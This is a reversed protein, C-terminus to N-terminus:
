SSEESRRTHQAVHERAAAVLVRQWASELRKLRAGRIDATFHTNVLLYLLAKVMPADDPSLSRHGVIAERYRANLFLRRADVDVRFFEDEPLMSWRIDVPQEDPVLDTADAFAEIVSAPMGGHPEVVSVPRAQRKRAERSEDRAAALLDAFGRGDASRAARIADKLVADLVVGTKEPNITVHRETSPGLDLALRAQGLDPERMTLDCWGGAQLLRDRRYVYLGQTDLPGREDLVFGPASQERAPWVYATATVTGDDLRVPLDMPFGVAGSVRSSFPDLPSVVAPAGPGYEADYEEISVHVAGRALLRHLVLGLHTALRHITSGIWAQQEEVDTTPLFARVDAWEVVTGTELDFDVDVADLRERATDSAYSEVVPGTDITARRIRRGVAPAGFRRSWVILTEAQSLSAAKLGIGFHGLDNEDYDRKRAYTMAADVAATDMGHGDDIVELGVPRGDRTVFRVVVNRAGADLSNDVLDAVATSLSHHRGIASTISPDPDVRRQTVPQPATPM